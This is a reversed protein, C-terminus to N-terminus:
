EEDDDEMDLNFLKPPATHAIPPDIEVEIKADKNYNGTGAHQSAMYISYYYNYAQVYCFPIIGISGAKLKEKSNGKVEYFYLLSKLMGSYSYNYEKKWADTVKKFLVFNFNDGQEKKVYKYLENFDNDEASAKNAEKKGCSIHAYRNTRPKFWIVGEGEPQADFVKGCYLCKVQHIGMNYNSGKLIKM